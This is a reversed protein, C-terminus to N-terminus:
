GKEITTDEKFKDAIITKVDFNIVGYDPKPDVYEQHAKSGKVFPTDPINVLGGKFGKKIKKSFSGLYPLDVDIDYKLCTYVFEAYARFIADIEDVTLKYEKVRKSQKLAKCVDDAKLRKKNKALRKGRKGHINKKTAIGILSLRVGDRM